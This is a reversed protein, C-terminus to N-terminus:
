KSQKSPRDHIIDQNHGDQVSPVKAGPSDDTARCMAIPLEALCAACYLLLNCQIPNPRASSFANPAIISSALAMGGHM